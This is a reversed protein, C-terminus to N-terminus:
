PGKVGHGLTNSTDPASRVFRVPPIVTNTTDVATSCRFWKRWIIRFDKRSRAYVVPNILSNIYGLLLLAFELRTAGVTQHLVGYMLTIFSYPMWCISNLIAIIGMLKALIFNNRQRTAATPLVEVHRGSHVQWAKRLIFIYLVFSIGFAFVMASSRIVHLESPYLDKIVCAMGNEWRNLGLFPLFGIIFGCLYSCLIQVKVSKHTNWEKHKEHKCISLFRDFTTCALLNTSILAMTYFIDYSFLCLFKYSLLQGHIRLFVNIVMGAGTGIDAISLALIFNITSNTKKLFHCCAGIVMGNGVLIGLSLLVPLISRVTIAATYPQINTETWNVITTMNM